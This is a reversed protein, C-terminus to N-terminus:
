PQVLARKAKVVRTIFEAGSVEVAGAHRAREIAGDFVDFHEKPHGRYQLWAAKLGIRRGFALLEETGAEGPLDSSLHTHVKFRQFSVPAPPHFLIM